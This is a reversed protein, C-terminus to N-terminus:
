RNEVLSLSELRDKVPQFAQGVAGTSFDFLVVPKRLM